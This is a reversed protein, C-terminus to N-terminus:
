DRESSLKKAYKVINEQGDNAVLILPTFLELLRGDLLGLIAEVSEFAEVAEGQWTLLYNFRWTLLKARIELAKKEDLIPRVKRTKKMAYIMISKTELSEELERRGDICKQRFTDYLHVDGKDDARLAPQGKKYGSNLLSVVISLEDKKLRDSGDIFLTFKFKEIGRYLAAIM